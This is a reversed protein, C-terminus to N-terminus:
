SYDLCIRCGARAGAHGAGLSHRPLGLMSALAATGASSTNSHGTCRRRVPLKHQKRRAVQLLEKARLFQRACGDQAAALSTPQRCHRIHVIGATDPCWPPSRARLGARPAMVQRWKTAQISKSAFSFADERKDRSLAFFLFAPWPWHCHEVKVTKTDIWALVASAARM